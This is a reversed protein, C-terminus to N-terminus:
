KNVSHDKNPMMNRIVGLVEKRKLIQQDADHFRSNLGREHSLHYLPGPVRKLRYGLSGWRYFREGDELGWGYFNENELGAEKYTELNCIFAGGLPNPPYMEKMKKRNQDFLELRKEALFMKRIISSTDLAFKEYPIVFDAEGKRLLEIGLLIQRDSIIVDADWIAVLPTRVELSMLNLHRTRFLVPDNDEQFTYNINKSLLKELIGNNLASCEKVTINTEFNKNIFETTVLLNELRDVSDLRVLFLFTVDNLLQKASSVSSMISRAKQDNSISENSGNGKKILTRFMTTYKEAQEKWTWGNLISNRANESMKTIDSKKLREIASLLSEEDREILFGNIGDVILEPMNGAKTTIVPLGCSLAELAPNPTGEYDSFCIFFNAKHYIQDRLEDQTIVMGNREARDYVMLPIDAKSCVRRINDLGKDIIHRSNGAWCATLDSIVSSGPKFLEEDVGNPCYFTRYLDKTYIYMERNNVLGALPKYVLLTNLFDKIKAPCSCGIILKEAPVKFIIDTIYSDFIVVLDYLQHNFGENFQVSEILIDNPQNRAINNIRHWWAWGKLDYFLLIKFFHFKLEEM